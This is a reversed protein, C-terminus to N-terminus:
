FFFFNEGKLWAITPGRVQRLGRRLEGGPTSSSGALPRGPAGVLPLLVEMGERATKQVGVGTGAGAGAGGEVSSNNLCNM